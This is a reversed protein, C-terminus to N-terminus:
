GVLDREFKSRMLTREGPGATERNKVLLLASGL